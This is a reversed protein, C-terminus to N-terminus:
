NSTWLRYNRFDIWQDVTPAFNATNGGYFVSHLMYQIGASGSDSQLKKAVTLTASEGPPTIMRQVGNIWMQVQSNSFGVDNVRVRQRITIWQGVQEPPITYFTWDDGFQSLKGPYYAYINLAGGARWMLRTSWGLSADGGGSNDTGGALGPLKGGSRWQFGPKFMVDYELVAEKVSPLPSAWPAIRYGFGVGGAVGSVNEGNQLNFSGAPMNVRMTPRGDTLKFDLVGDKVYGNIFRSDQPWRDAFAGDVGSIPREWALTGLSPAAAEESVVMGVRYVDVYAGSTTSNPGVRVQLDSWTGNATFTATLVTYTVDDAGVATTITPAGAGTTDFAGLDTRFVFTTGGNWRVYSQQGGAERCELWLLSGATGPRFHATLTVRDGAVIGAIASSATRRTQFDSGGSAIRAPGPYYANPSALASVTVGADTWGAGMLDAPVANASELTEDTPFLLPSWAPIADVTIPASTVIRAGTADTFAATATIVEGAAAIHGNAAAVGDVTWALTLTTVEPWGADVISGTATIDAGLEDGNAITAQDIAVEVLARGDLVVGASVDVDSGAGNTGTAEVTITEGIHQSQIDMGLTSATQGSIAVADAFWRWTTKPTPSGASYTVAAQLPPGDENETVLPDSPTITVTSIVPAVRNSEIVANANASISSDANRVTFARSISTAGTIAAGAPAHKGAGDSGILIASDGVLAWDGIAASSGGVESVAVFNVPQTALVDFATEDPSAAWVGGAVVEFGSGTAWAFLRLDHSNSANPVFSFLLRRLGSADAAGASVLTFTGASAGSTNVSTFTAINAEYRSVTGTTVNRMEVDLRDNSAGSSAPRAIVAIYYTASATLTGVSRLIGGASAGRVVREPTWGNEASLTTRTAATGGSSWTSPSAANSNLPAAIEVVPVAVDSAVSPEVEYVCAISFTQDAFGKDNTYRAVVNAADFVAGGTVVLFATDGFVVLTVRGTPAANSQISWAGGHTNTFWTDLPVPTEDATDLAEVPGPTGVAAPLGQAVVTKVDSGAGAGASTVVRLQVERLEGNPSAVMRAGTGFGGSLVAWTEPGDAARLSIQIVPSDGTGPDPLEAIDVTVVDDGPADEVTWM